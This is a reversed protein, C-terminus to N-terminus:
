RGVLVAETTIKKKKRLSTISIKDGPKLTKLVDSFDKLSEIATNNIKIIVDGQKLGAAEAPSGPATGSLRFGKGSYAFDPITGLSAKRRVKPSPEATNPSKATASLPKKRGALFVVIEKTVSAVKVLGDADIKDATDTSRHYDLHPGSFLQVAPVGADQFSKQDSSDLEASVTEIDVGTVFGVGRFVHVWERASGAGLVLLKNKGLRGVTDLNVMGICDRAPYRKENAVYYKSGRKGAEEGTFAVFVITRDPRPGKALGRALEILVAVGSANDDAGPHIKGPAKDRTDPWGLGLHDYHAGVVVSQTKMEPKAGPIVGVVNKMTAARAPDGGVDEWNQFFSGEKGGAPLLGAEKFEQAVYEAAKDLGPTGFGRGGLDDSSLFRVTQMMREKSFIPDLDALPKRPALKGMEARATEGGGAPPFVTMPSAVVPWRGKAVNAPETGMFALYSYKHYHPLKTALGPLSEPLDAAILSLAVDRNDPLRTTLVFCHDKRSITSRNIRVAEKNVEVDYGALSAVVNALYRNEWGIITLACDNPLEAIETDLKVEVEDPGSRALSQAFTRYAQLLREDAASPLVVLMKRAGLALSIAPPVEERDLRRFLDFEPDVDLRLPRAPLVLKIEQRKGNMEITTQFARPRGELTVAVPIKLRYAEGPQTQELLATLVFQDKELSVAPKGVKLRPAGARTVWQEFEHKLDKGSVSELTTRIDDFTALRFKYKRYFERLGKKFVDDGLELRLMHYFMLSKGYGIAETSTDHRSRFQILPFDKNGRVYNAYKQLTAVRYEVGGGRQERLLHDALYTTIGECWNGKEYDPYVGNGWWNHLIEHPYSTNVIFPLRIVTPGLLTFSPMGFGTESFNEVLAFKKYPYPGILKEYMAIYRVTADLYKDALGRDPSRLFAMAQVPGAPRVYETFQAAILFISEQPEPSKWCVVTSLAGRDHLARVGQSVADWSEPLKVELDFTVLTSAFVPYWASSASLYVGETSIIGPTTQFGRAQEKAGRKVPHYITGEYSIVFTNVKPPLIIKYSVLPVAGQRKAQRVIRVGSSSSVPKMGGHLVFPMERPSNQPLTISDIVSIHREAPDLVVKLDHHVCADQARLFTAWFVIALLWTSRCLFVRM